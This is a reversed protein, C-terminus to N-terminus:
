SENITEIHEKTKVRKISEVLTAHDQKTQDAFSEAWEALAKYLVPSKGCYGVILAADGIRAHARALLAGCAWAYFSYSAGTLRQRGKNNGAILELPDPRDKPPIWQAHSERSVSRRLDKAPRM